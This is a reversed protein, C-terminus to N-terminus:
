TTLMRLLKLCGEPPTILEGLLKKRGGTSIFERRHVGAWQLSGLISIIIEQVRIVM